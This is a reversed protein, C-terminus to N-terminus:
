VGAPSFNAVDGATRRRWEEFLINRQGINRGLLGGDSISQQNFDASLAHFRLYDRRRKILTRFFCLLTLVFLWSGLASIGEGVSRLYVLSCSHIVGSPAMPM